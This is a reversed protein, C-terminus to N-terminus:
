SAYYSQEEDLGDNVVIDLPELVNQLLMVAGLPPQGHDTDSAHTCPREGQLIEVWPGIFRERSPDDTTFDVVERQWIEDALEDPTWGSLAGRVVLKEVRGLIWGSALLCRVRLDLLLWAEAPTPRQVVQQRRLSLAAAALHLTSFTVSV